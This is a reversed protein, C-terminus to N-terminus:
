DTLLILPDVQPIGNRHTQEDQRYWDVRKKLVEDDEGEISVEKANRLLKHDERAVAEVSKLLTQQM